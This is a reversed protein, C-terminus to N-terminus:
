PAMAQPSMGGLVRKAKQGAKFAGNRELGNILTVQEVPITSPFRAQFMDVAMDSPVTVIQVRAAQVNVPNTACALPVSAILAVALARIRSSTLQPTM